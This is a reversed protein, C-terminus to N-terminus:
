AFRVVVATVNDPAGKRNARGILLSVASAVSRSDLLAAIEELPVVALGDTCLLYTDGLMAQDVRTEVDLAGEMGVYRGLLNRYSSVKAREPTMVGAAILENAVSHEMTLRELSGHRLRYLISDGIHAIGVTAGNVVMATLTTGMGTKRPDNSAAGRVERQARHFGNVLLPLGGLPGPASADPSTITDPATFVEGVANAALRAAVDGAVAGGVGDAVLYVGHSPLLAYVDENTIRIKGRDTQGAVETRPWRTIARDSTVHHEDHIDESM